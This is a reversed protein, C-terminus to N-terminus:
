AAERIESEWGRIQRENDRQRRRAKQIAAEIEANEAKLERIRREAIVQNLHIIM